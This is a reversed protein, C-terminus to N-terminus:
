IIECVRGVERSWVELEVWVVCRGRIGGVMIMSGTSREEGEREIDSVVVLAVVQFQYEGGVDLGEVVASSGEESAVRMSREESAQRKESAGDTRILSYYVRYASVDRSDLGRWSVLVSTDSLSTVSVGFM